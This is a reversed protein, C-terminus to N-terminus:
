DITIVPLLSRFSSQYQLHLDLYDGSWGGILHLRDDAAAAAV